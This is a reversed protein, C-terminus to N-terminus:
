IHIDHPDSGEQFRFRVPEAMMGYARRRLLSELLDLRMIVVKEDHYEMQFLSKSAIKYEKANIEYVNVGDVVECNFAQFCEMIPLHYQCVLKNKADLLVIQKFIYRDEYVKIVKQCEDSVCFFPFFIMDYFRLNKDSEVHLLTRQPIKYSEEICISEVDIKGYWNKVVPEHKLVEYKHLMFYEM